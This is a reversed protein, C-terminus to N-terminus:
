DGFDFAALARCLPCILNDDHQQPHLGKAARAIRLLAPIAALQRLELQQPAPLLIGGKSMDPPRELEATKIKDAM